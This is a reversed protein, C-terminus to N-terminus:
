LRPWFLFLFFSFFKLLQTKFYWVRNLRSILLPAILLLLIILSSRRTDSNSSSSGGFDRPKFQDPPIFLHSQVLKPRQFLRFAPPYQISVKFNLPCPGQTAYEKFIRFRLAGASLM